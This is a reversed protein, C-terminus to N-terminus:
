SRRHAVPEQREDLRRRIAGRMGEYAGRDDGTKDEGDGVDEHDHAAVALTIRM